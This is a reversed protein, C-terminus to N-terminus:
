APVRVKGTVVASILASRHEQLLTITAEAESILSDNKRNEAQLTKLIEIQFQRPPVVIPIEMLNTSSISALNTSQKSRTMFYHQAFSSGSFTNIWEPSAAFPRIAFVHNQHICPEIEGMWVHGRGLKDFDGGENMLVDGRQLLYRGVSEVEVFMTAIEELDLYGDQVNAVRLYPVEVTQSDGNDKGKAIGTQVTAVFKLRKVDWGEPIEGLWDVGSDKMKAKPDLGKTVAHSILAQRKEQLLAILGQQEDILTDIRQTQADLYNAISQQEAFPALPLPFRNIDDQFIHPVGMGGKKMEILSMYYDSLFLYKLFIGLLRSDPTIVAISSNVTAPRSLSKVINVTGLTSGDKALLVDGVRLIIEPSELFRQETIFNAESFDIESGKIDPTSLFAFGDDVYEEAKLGKWGLRARVWSEFGLRSISWGEPIKGLWDVGSNKYKPYPVLKESM